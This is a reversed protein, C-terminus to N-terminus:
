IKYEIDEVRTYELEYDLIDVKGVTPNEVSLDCLLSLDTLEDEFLSLSLNGYKDLGKKIEDETLIDSTIEFEVWGSVNIVVKM